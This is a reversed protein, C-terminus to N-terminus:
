RDDGGDHQLFSELNYIGFHDIDDETVRPGYPDMMEQPNLMKWVRVEELVDLLGM